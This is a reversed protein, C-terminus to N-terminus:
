MMKIDGAKVSGVKVRAPTSDALKSSEGEAKVIRYGVLDADGLLSRIKVWDIAHGSM